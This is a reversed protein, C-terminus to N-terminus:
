SMTMAFFPFGITRRTGTGLLVRRVPKPLTLPLIRIPSSKSAGSGSLRNRANPASGHVEALGAGLAQGDHRRIGSEVM